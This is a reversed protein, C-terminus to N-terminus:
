VRHHRPCQDAGRLPHDELLDLIARCAQATGGRHRQIFDTARRQLVHRPTAKEVTKLLLGVAQRWDAAVHVLREQLLEAGVWRFARWHPGIVPTVGGMLAELFNHGGLPKLSGGVFAAAADQYIRTLEGFVDGVVVSGRAIPGDIRSRRLAELGSTQLRQCLADVRHMHRPFVGVVADPRHRQLRVIMRTALREESQHVSALVVFPADTPLHRTWFGPRASPQASIPLPIRDFKMNPMCAVCGPGFLQGLRGADEPGIALVRAPALYRWLRPWLRYAKLSRARLRANVMIVPIGAQRLSFLLGPWLETELLVMLRPKLSSVARHMVTPRDFPFYSIQLRGDTPGPRLRAMAAALIDLGQQTNTTTLIGLDTEHALREVLMGALYSEGASAAQIWIDASCRFPRALLRQAYGERLKVHRRLFPLAPKWLQDYAGFAWRITKPITHPLTGPGERHRRM